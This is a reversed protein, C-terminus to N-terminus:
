PRFRGRAQGQDAPRHHGSRRRHLNEGGHDGGSLDSHGFSSDRELALERKNLTTPAPHAPPRDHSADKTCIGTMTLTSLRRSPAAAALPGAIARHDRHLRRFTREHPPEGPRLFVRLLGAQRLPGRLLSQRVNRQRACLRLRAKSLQPAEIRVLNDVPYGDNGPISTGPPQLGTIAVGNAEGTIGTIEYFGDGNPADKTMFTGSAAVGEGQYSWKWTSAQARGALLGVGIALAFALKV